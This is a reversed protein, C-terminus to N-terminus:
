PRLAHRLLMSTGGRGRRIVSPVLSLAHLRSTIHWRAARAARRWGLQSVQREAMEFYEREGALRAGDLLEASSVSARHRRYAFCVTPELLLREGACTMDIVLALDLIIPLGERFPTRVLVERRFALSPWYLWDGHLLTTALSEGSLVRPQSASPRIIRQKVTDALTRAPQGAEDIVMVGPQVVAVDPSRDYARLITEVYTPLLIDDCGVIAVVDQEALEACQRFTAAVGQNTANRVYRVRREGLGALYDGLWEQPYADDVVTLRWDDSSQGLISQVTERMYAPDGWYPLMIDITM